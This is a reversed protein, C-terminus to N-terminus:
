GDFNDPAALHMFYVYDNTLSTLGVLSLRGVVVSPTVEDNTTKGRLL